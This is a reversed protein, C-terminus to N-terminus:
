LGVPGTARDRQYGHVSLRSHIQMNIERQNRVQVITPTQPRQNRGGRASPKIGFWYHKAEAMSDFTHGDLEVRKAKYKM